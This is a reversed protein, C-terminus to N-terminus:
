RSTRRRRRGSKMEPILLAEQCKGSEVFSTIVRMKTYSTQLLERSHLQLTAASFQLYGDTEKDQKPKNEQFDPQLLHDHCEMATKENEEEGGGGLNNRELQTNFGNPQKICICKPYISFHGFSHYNSFKCFAHTEKHRM